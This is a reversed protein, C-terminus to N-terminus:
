KDKNQDDVGYIPPMPEVPGYPPRIIITPRQMSQEVPSAKELYQMVTKLAQMNGKLSESYLKNILAEKLEIQEKRGGKNITVLQKSVELFTDWFKKEKQANTPRGNQNGSQGKQFQTSKPPRGYGVEYDDNNDTM